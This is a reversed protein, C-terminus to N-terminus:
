RTSTRMSSTLAAAPRVVRCPKAAGASARELATARVTAVVAAALVGVSVMAEITGNEHAELLQMRETIPTSATVIEAEVGNARIKELTAEAVTVDPCFWASIPASPVNQREEM